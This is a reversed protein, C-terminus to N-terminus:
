VEFLHPIDLVPASDHDDLFQTYNSSLGDTGFSPGRKPHIQSLHSRQSMGRTYLLPETNLDAEDIGHRNTQSPHSNGM